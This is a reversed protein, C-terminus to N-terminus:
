AGLFIHLVVRGLQSKKGNKLYFHESNQAWMLVQSDPALFELVNNLLTRMSSFAHRTKDPNNSNISEQAGNLLRPLSPDIAALFNSCDEINILIEPYTEDFFNSDNEDESDDVTIKISNGTLFLEQSAGNIIHEPLKFIESVSKIPSVFEDFQKRLIAYDNLVSGLGYINQGKISKNLGRFIQESAVSYKLSECVKSGAIVGLAGSDNTPIDLQNKWSNHTSGLDWLKMSESASRLLHALHKNATGSGELMGLEKLSALSGFDEKIKPVQNLPISSMLNRKISNLLKEDALGRQLEQIQRSLRTHQDVERFIQRSQNFEKPWDEISM